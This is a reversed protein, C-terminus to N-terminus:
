SAAHRATGQASTAGAPEPPLNWGGGLSKYLYVTSTNGILRLSILAQQAAYLSRQADLVTLYSDVGSNFRAESLDYYERTAEVLATQAKLQEDLTSRRALADAVERFATQIAKEYDAVAIEQDVEAVRLNARNRGANFIPIDIRPIFQWFGTGGDFLDSLSSSSTGASATLTIRPFFAARAAGINANAAQLQREAALVDPRSLLVESPLGANLTALTVRDDMQSHPLLAEPVDTGALLNLLNQDELVRSSYQAIDVRASEVQTQAQRVDLLTAVGLEHSRKVLEYSQSQAKLTQRALDLRERDAGLALYATAVEAVLAIQVAKRAEETAFYRQLAQENLSRIRGFLDLEYASTGIGAQYSGSTTTIGERSASAPTRQRTGSGLADISPFLESRRVQYQERARDINLAAIRLDRNNNLALEVVQRLQTDLIFEQWPITAAARQAQDDPGANRVDTSNVPWISPAPSEPRQYEPALTTCGTLVLAAFLTTLSFRTM